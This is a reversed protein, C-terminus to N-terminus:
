AEKVLDLADLDIAHQAHRRLMTSLMVDGRETQAALMTAIVSMVVGWISSRRYGLWCDDFSLEVGAANMRAHYEAVLDPEAGARDDAEFSGGIMYALDHTAPGVTYTQWDVVTLPPAGPGDGFLFNDPRFDMHVLTLPATSGGTWAGVKPALRRVLDIASAPVLEGLRAITGEMTAAYITHLHVAAEAPTRKAMPLLTPDGWRPAHLGVAQEVGLAAEDVTLGRMQDGQASGSMDEMLLIFNEGPQDFRAVYCRPARIRVTHALQTYFVHENLYSGGDMFGTTRATADAAPLKAVVSAPGADARDWTLAYRANRAMQGTGIWGVFTVGTVSAGAAAAGGEVLAQTMWAPDIATPDTPISQEALM